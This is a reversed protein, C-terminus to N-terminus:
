GKKNNEATGHDARVISTLKDVTSEEFWPRFKFTKTAWDDNLQSPCMMTTFFDRSIVANGSSVMIPYDVPMVLGALRNKPPTAM